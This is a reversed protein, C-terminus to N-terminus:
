NGISAFPLGRPFGRTRLQLPYPSFFQPLEVDCLCNGEQPPVEVVINRRTRGLRCGPQNLLLSPEHFQCITFSTNLAACSTCRRQWVLAQGKQIMPPRASIRQPSGRSVTSTSMVNSVPKPVSSVKM